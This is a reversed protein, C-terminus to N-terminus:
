ASSIPSFSIARSSPAVSRSSFSVSESSVQRVSSPTRSIAVTSYRDSFHMRRFPKGAKPFAKKTMRCASGTGVPRTCPCDMGQGNAPSGRGFAEPIGGWGTEGCHVEAAPLPRVVRFLRFGATLSREAGRCVASAGLFGGFCPDIVALVEAKGEQFVVQGRGLPCRRYEQSEVGFFRVVSGCVPFGGRFVWAFFARM